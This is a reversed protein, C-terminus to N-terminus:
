KIPKFIMRKHSLIMSKLNTEAHPDMKHHQFKFGEPSIKRQSRTGKLCLSKSAKFSSSANFGSTCCRSSSSFLLFLLWTFLNSCIGCSPERSSENSRGDNLLCVSFFLMILWTNHDRMTVYITAIM